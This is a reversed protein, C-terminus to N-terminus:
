SLPANQLASRAIWYFAATNTLSEKKAPDQLADEFDGPGAEHRLFSATLEDLHGSLYLAAAAIVTAGVVVALTLAAHQVWWAVRWVRAYRSVDLMTPQSVASVWHAGFKWRLQSREAAASAVNIASVAKELVAKARGEPVM